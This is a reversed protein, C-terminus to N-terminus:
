IRSLGLPVLPAEPAVLPAGPAEVLVGTINAGPLRQSLYYATATGGIGGGVVAVRPAGEERAGAMAVVAALALGAMRAM